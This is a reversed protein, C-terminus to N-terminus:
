SLRAFGAWEAIAFKTGSREVTAAGSGPFHAPFVLAATEAARGLLERRTARAQAPDECFCSNTDPEAIQVPSHVLDGVFLARERGSSLELV